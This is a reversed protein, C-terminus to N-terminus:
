SKRLSLLLIKVKSVFREEKGMIWYHHGRYLIGTRKVVAQSKALCEKAERCPCLGRTNEKLTSMSISLLTKLQNGLTIILFVRRISSDENIIINPCDNLWKVVRRIHTIIETAIKYKLHQANCFLFRWLCLKNKYSHQFVLVLLFIAINLASHFQISNIHQSSLRLFDWYRRQWSTM